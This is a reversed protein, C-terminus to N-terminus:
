RPKPAQKDTVEPTIKAPPSPEDRPSEILRRYTKECEASSLEPLIVTNGASESTIQELAQRFDDETQRNGDIGQLSPLNLERRIELIETLAAAKELETMQRPANDIQRPIELTTPQTSPLSQPTKERVVLYAVSFGIAIGLLCFLWDKRM